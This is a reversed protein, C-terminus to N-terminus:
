NIDDSDERIGIRDMLIAVVFLLPQSVKEGMIDREMTRLGYIHFHFTIELIM